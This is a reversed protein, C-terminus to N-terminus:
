HRIRDLVEAMPLSGGFLSKVVGRAERWARLEATLPSSDWIKVTRDWSASALAHGDPSFAVSSVLDDHGRLTLVDQGTAADWIIINGDSGTSAVILGDVSYAVGCVKDTHGRLTRVERGRSADWLKVSHDYGASAVTQGDPSFALSYVPGN